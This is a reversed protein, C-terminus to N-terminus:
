DAGGRSRAAGVEDDAGGVVATYKAFGRGARIDEDSYTHRNHLNSILSATGNRLSPLAFATAPDSGALVFCYSAGTRVGLRAAGPM